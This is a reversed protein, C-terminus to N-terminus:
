SRDVMPIVIIQQLQLNTSVFVFSSHKPHLYVFISRTTFVEDGFKWVGHEIRLSIIGTEGGRLETM